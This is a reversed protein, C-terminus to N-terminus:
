TNVKPVQNLSQSSCDAVFKGSKWSCSCAPTQSLCNTTMMLMSSTQQPISSLLLLFCTCTSLYLYCNFAIFTKSKTEFKNSNNALMNKCCSALEEEKRRNSRRENRRTPPMKIHQQRHRTKLRIKFVEVEEEVLMAEVNLLSFLSSCSAVLLCFM